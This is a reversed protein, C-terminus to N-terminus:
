RSREQDAAFADRTLIYSPHDLGTPAYYETHTFRFGLKQLLRRSSENAPNHGAFLATAHMSDFAYAIVARAAESAYGKGWESKRIHFGIEYIERDLNRPRLGCCGVHQGTALLFIPWYQIGHANQTEIEHSLRSLIQEETLPGGILRTVTPDGWLENALSFDSVTWRRFGLRASRLFYDSAM